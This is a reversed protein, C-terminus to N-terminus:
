PPSAHTGQASPSTVSRSPPFVLHTHSASENRSPSPHADQPKKHRVYALRLAAIGVLLLPIVFVRM